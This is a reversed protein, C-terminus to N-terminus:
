KMNGGVGSASEKFLWLIYNLYNSKKNREDRLNMSAFSNFKFFYKFQPFDKFLRTIPLRSRNLNKFYRSFRLRGSKARLSPILQLYKFTNLTNIFKLPTEKQVTINNEVEGKFGSKEAQVLSALSYGACAVGEVSPQKHFVAFFRERNMSNGVPDCDQRLTTASKAFPLVHNMFYKGYNDNIQELKNISLQINKLKNTLSDEGESAQAPVPINNLARQEGSHERNLANLAAFGPAVSASFNNAYLEESLNLGERREGPLAAYGSGIPARNFKNFEKNLLLFQNLFSKYQIKNFYSKKLPYFNKNFQFKGFPYSHQAAGEALPPTLNKFKSNVAKINLNDSNLSKNLVNNKTFYHLYNNKKKYEKEGSQPKVPNEAQKNLESKNILINDTAKGGTSAAGKSNSEPTSILSTNENVKKSLSENTIANSNKMLLTDKDTKVLSKEYERVVDDQSQVSHSACAPVSLSTTKSEKTEIVERKSSSQLPTFTNPSCLGTNIDSPISSNKKVTKSTTKNISSKLTSKYKLIKSKNFKIFDEITDLPSAPKPNVKSSTPIDRRSSKEETLSEFSNSNLPYYKNLIKELQTTPHKIKLNSNSNISNNIYNNGNLVLKSITPNTQNAKVEVSKDAESAPLIPATKLTFPKM